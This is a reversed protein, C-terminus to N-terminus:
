LIQISFLESADKKNLRLEVPGDAYSSIEYSNYFLVVDTDTFGISAPLTFKDNDFFFGTSNISQDEPINYTKRFIAEAFSVFKGHDKFLSNSDIVKGTEPDLNIFKFNENGHAGGTFIYSDISISLIDQNQFSLDCHISAEYPVIEEPFEQKIKQYSINFSKIAEEITEIPEGEDIHLTSSTAQEIEHNIKKTIDTENIFRLLLIETLVCDTNKCDFFDQIAIPQKEFTLMEVNNCSYFSILIGIMRIFSLKM